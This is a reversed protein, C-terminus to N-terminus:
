RECRNYNEKQGKFLHKPLLCFPRFRLEAGCQSGTVFSPNGIRTGKIMVERKGLPKPSLPDGEAEIIELRKKEVLNETEYKFMSLNGMEKFLNRAKFEEGDM